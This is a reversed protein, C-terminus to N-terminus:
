MCVGEHGGHMGGCVGHMTGGHMTGGHMGGRAPRAVVRSSRNGALHMHVTHPLRTWARPAKLLFKAAEVEGDSGAIHIPTRGDYDGQPSM